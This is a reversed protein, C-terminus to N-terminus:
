KIQPLQFIMTYKKNVSAHAKVFMGVLQKVNDNLANLTGASAIGTINVSWTPAFAVIVPDRSLSVAQRLQVSVDCAFRYKEFEHTNVNVYLIPRGPTQLWEDQKLTRIGATRLQDEVQRSLQEKSIEQKKTYKQLNPQLEEIIVRISKIGELTTRTEDSDLASVNSLPLCFFVICGLTILLRNM